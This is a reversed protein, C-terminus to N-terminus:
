IGGGIWSGQNDFIDCRPRGFANWIVNLLPRMAIPVNNRPDEILIEPFSVLPEGAVDSLHVDSTGARGLFLHLDECNCLSFMAFTPFDFGYHEQM